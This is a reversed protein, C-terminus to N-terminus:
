DHHKVKQFLTIGDYLTWCSLHGDQRGRGRCCQEQLWRLNIEWLHCLPQQSLFNLFSFCDNLFDSHSSPAITEKPVICDLAGQLKSGGEVSALLQVGDM